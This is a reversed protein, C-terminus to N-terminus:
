LLETPTDGRPPFLIAPSEKEDGGRQPPKSSSFHPRHPRLLTGGSGAGAAAAAGFLQMYDSPRMDSPNFQQPQQQQQQQQRSSRSPPQAPRIRSASSPKGSAATSIAIGAASVPAAPRLPRTSSGPRSSSSSAPRARNSSQPRSVVLSTSSDSRGHAKSGGTGGGGTYLSLASSPRSDAEATPKAGANGVGAGVTTNENLKEFLLQLVREREHLTLDELRLKSPDTVPAVPPPLRPDSQIHLSSSASTDTSGAGPLLAKIGRPQYMGEALRALNQRYAAVAQEYHRARRTCVEQKVRQLMASAVREVDSQQDRLLSLQRHLAQNERAKLASLSQLKGLEMQLPVLAAGPGDIADGGAPLLALAASPDAGTLLQQQQQQQQQSLLQKAQKEAARQKQGEAQVQQLSSTLLAHKHQLEQLVKTNRLSAAAYAADKRELEKVSAELEAAIASLEANGQQLKEILAQHFDREQAMKANDAHIWKSELDLERGVEEKYSKRSAAIRAASEELLRQRAALFKKELDSMQLAHRRENKVITRKTHGLEALLDGRIRSFLLLDNHEQHRLRNLDLLEAEARAFTQELAAIEAAYDTQKQAKEAVQAAHLERLERGLQKTVLDKRRVETELYALVDASDQSRSQLEGHLTSVSSALAANRHQVPSLIL